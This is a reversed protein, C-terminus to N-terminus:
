SPLSALSCPTVPVSDSPPSSLAALSLSALPLSLDLPLLSDAPGKMREMNFCLVCRFLDNGALVSAAYDPYSLPLYVLVSQFLLYCGPLYLAAGIVPVIWHVSERASWGFMLTAIPVLFSGIFGIELRVEPELGGERESRPQLHYYQYLAYATYTIIGSVIIGLFTLGTAGLNFHYVGEFAFPISEFFLYFIAYVIAIYLNLVFIAPEVMLKIPRLLSDSALESMTLRAQQREGHSTLKPNGTLKRLRRARHLLITSGLTEPLFFFLFVLAFSSLWTLIWIPYQWSVLM